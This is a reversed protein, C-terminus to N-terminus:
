PPVVVGCRQEKKAKVAAERCAALAAQNEGTLKVADSLTRWAQPDQAEMLAGGANWRDARMIFAAVHGDWGFPLVRALMPSILLRCLTENEIQLPKRKFGVPSANLTM